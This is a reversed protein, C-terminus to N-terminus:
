RSAMPRRPQPCGTGSRSVLSVGIVELVLWGSVPKTGAALLLTLRSGVRPTQGQHAEALLGGLGVSGAHPAGAWLRTPTPIPQPLWLGSCEM